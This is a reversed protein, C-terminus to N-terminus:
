SNIERSICYVSKGAPVVIDISQEKSKSTSSTLTKDYSAEIEATIRTEGSAGYLEGGYGITQELGITLGVHVNNTDETSEETTYNFSWDLDESGNNKIVNSTLM